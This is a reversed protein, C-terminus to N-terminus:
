ETNNMNGGDDDDDDDDDRTSCSWIMVPTPKSQKCVISPTM